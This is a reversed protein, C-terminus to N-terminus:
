SPPFALTQDNIDRLALAIMREILRKLLCLSLGYARVINIQIMIEQTQTQLFRM